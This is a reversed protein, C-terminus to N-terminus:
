GIIMGSQGQMEVAFYHLLRISIEPTWDM